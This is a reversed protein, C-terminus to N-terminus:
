SDTTRRKACMVGSVMKKLAVKPHIQSIILVCRSGTHKHTVYESAQAEHEYPYRFHRQGIVRGIYISMCYHSHPFDTATTNIQRLGRRLEGM